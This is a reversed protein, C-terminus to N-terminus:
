GKPQSVLSPPQHEDHVSAILHAAMQAYCGPRPVWYNLGHSVTWHKLMAQHHQTRIVDILTPGDIRDACGQCFATGDLYWTCSPILVDRCIPCEPAPTHHDPTVPWIM